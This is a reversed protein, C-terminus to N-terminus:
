AQPLDEVSSSEGPVMLRIVEGESVRGEAHVVNRQTLDEPDVGFRVAAADTKFTGSLMQEILGFILMGAAPHPLDGLDIELEPYGFAALGYSAIFEQGFDSTVGARVISLIPFQGHKAPQAADIYLGPKQLCELTFVGLPEATRCLAALIQAYLPAADVAETPNANLEFALYGTHFLLLTEASRTFPSKRAATALRTDELREHVLRITGTTTGIRITFVDPDEPTRDVLGLNWSKWLEDVLLAKDFRMQQPTLLLKAEFRGPTLAPLLAKEFNSARAVRDEESQLLQLGTPTEEALAQKLEQYRPDNPGYKKLLAQALPFNAAKMTSSLKRAREYHEISGEEDDMRQRAMGLLWERVAAEEDNGPNMAKASKEAEELDGELFLGLIRHEEIDFSRLEVPIQGIARAIKKVDHRFLWFKVWSLIWAGDAENWDDKMGITLFRRLIPDKALGFLKKSANPFFTEFWLRDEVEPDSVAQVKKPEGTAKLNEAWRMFDLPDPVGNPSVRMRMPAEAAGADGPAQVEDGKPAEAASSSEDEGGENQDFAEYGEDADETAAEDIARRLNGILEDLEARFDEATIPNGSDADTLSVRGGTKEAQYAAAAIAGLNAAPLGDFVGGKAGSGGAEAADNVAEDSDDPKEDGGLEVLPMSEPAPETSVFFNPAGFVEERVDELLSAAWDIFNSETLM